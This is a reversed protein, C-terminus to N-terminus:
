PAKCFGQMNCMGTTPPVPCDTTATAASCHLSCYSRMGGMFCVNSQCEGNAACAVGFRKLMDGSGGALDGPTTTLDSSALDAPAPDTGGCGPPLAALAVM